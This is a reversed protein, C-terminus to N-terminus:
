QRSDPTVTPTVEFLASLPGDDRFDIKFTAINHRPRIRPPTHFDAAAAALAAPMPPPTDAAAARRRDDALQWHL